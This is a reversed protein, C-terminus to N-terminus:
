PVQLSDALFRVQLPVSSNLAAFDAAGQVVFFPPKDDGIGSGRELVCKTSDQFRARTFRRWPMACLWRYRCIRRMCTPMEASGWRAKGEYAIQVGLSPTLKPLAAAAGPSLVAYGTLM